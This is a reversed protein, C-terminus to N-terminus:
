VTQSPADKNNKSVLNCIKKKLFFGLIFISFCLHGEVLLFSGSTHSFSSDTSKETWCDIGAHQSNGETCINPLVHYWWKRGSSCATKQLCVDNCKPPLIFLNQTKQRLINSHGM